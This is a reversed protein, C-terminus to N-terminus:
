TIQERIWQSVIPAHTHVILHGGDPVSFDAQRFPLLRDSDGHIQAIALPESRKNWTIIQHIAWRLFFPDTAALISRLLEKDEKQKMGFIWDQLANGKKMWQIPVWWHIPFYRLMQFYFPIATADRASSILIVKETAVQAAIETAMMGGFSVGILIPQPSKIQSSLRQAYSKMTDDPLPKIWDIYHVKYGSLDLRDFIRKDAGLGSLLYVDKTKICDFNQREFCYM